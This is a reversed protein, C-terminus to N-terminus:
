GPAPCNDAFCYGHIANVTTGNNMTVPYVRAHVVDKFGPGSEHLVALLNKMALTIWEQDTCVINGTAPDIGSSGPCSHLILPYLPGAKRGSPNLARRTFVVQKALQTGSPLLTRLSSVAPLVPVLIVTNKDEAM